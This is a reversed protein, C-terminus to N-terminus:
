CYEDLRKGRIVRLKEKLFWNWWVDQNEMWDESCGGRILNRVRGPVPEGRLPFHLHNCHALQLEKQYIEYTPFPGIAIAKGENEGCVCWWIEFYPWPGKFDMTFM